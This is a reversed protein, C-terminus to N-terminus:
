LTGVTGTRSAFVLSFPPNLLYAELRAIDSKAAELRWLLSNCRRCLLGRVQNASHDHDVDLPRGDKPEEHCVACRGNQSALLARYEDPSLGFKKLRDKLRVDPHAALYKQRHLEKRWRSRKAWERNKRRRNTALSPDLAERMTRSRAYLKYCNKCKSRLNLGSRKSPRKCGYFDKLPLNRHCGLCVKEM